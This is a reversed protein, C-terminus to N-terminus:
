TCNLEYRPSLDNYCAHMSVCSVAQEYKKDRHMTRPSIVAIHTIYIADDRKSKNVNKM